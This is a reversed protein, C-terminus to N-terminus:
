NSAANRRSSRIKNEYQNFILEGNHETMLKERYAPWNHGSKDSFLMKVQMKNQAARMEEVDIGLPPTLTTGLSEYVPIKGIMQLMRKDRETVLPDIVTLGLVDPRNPTFFSWIDVLTEMNKDNPELSPSVISITNGKRSYHTGELGYHTLLFGEESALWDLIAATKKLKEPYLGATNNSFVFPYGASVAVQLPQNILPNFPVWDAEPNIFKSRSQLSEPNSDLAFDATDGLIVGVKGQVAKEIHKSGSNLFWDPDVLGEDIMKRIDNVVDGVRPDTQMDVLKNNEFYYPYVLGNKGYEPWEQSISKGNGYTTFGYTDDIGNGDPDQYTFARLAEVYQDYTQPVALHFRDLWDKRIYYVRYSNDDYPLPARAFKNHVQYERFEKEDIWYQFYNPMTSPTVYFNLDALVNDLIYQAGGDSSINLWMDPPDNAALMKAIAVNYEEDPAIVTLKLNVNFKSEIIASIFDSDSALSYSSPSGSILFHLDLGESKASVDQRDNTNLLDFRFLAYVGLLIVATAAIGIRSRRM